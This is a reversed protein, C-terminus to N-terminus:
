RCEELEWVYDAVNTQSEVDGEEGERERRGKVNEQVDPPAATEGYGDAPRANWWTQRIDSL